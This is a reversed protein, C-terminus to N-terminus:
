DAEAQQEDSSVVRTVYCTEHVPKGDEDAVAGSTLSLPAGCLRCIIHPNVETNMARRRDAIPPFIREKGSINFCGHNTDIPFFSYKRSSRTVEGKGTVVSLGM